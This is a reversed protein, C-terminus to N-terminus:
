ATTEKAWVYHIDPLKEDNGSGDTRETEVFGARRYFRQAGTNAQFTWLTLRDAEAQAHQLLARGLGSGNAARSVYLAVIESGDRALFGEVMGERGAVTMWGRDIMTGCFAITEAATHLKPMWPTRMIFDYLIDGTAGADTPRAPRICPTM